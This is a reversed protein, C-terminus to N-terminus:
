LFSGSDSAVQKFTDTNNFCGVTLQSYKTHKQQKNLRYQDFSLSLSQIIIKLFAFRSSATEGTKIHKPDGPKHSLTQVESSQEVWGTNGPIFWVDLVHM